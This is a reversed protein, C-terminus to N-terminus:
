GEGGTVPGGHAKAYHKCQISVSFNKLVETGRSTDYVKYYDETMKCIGRHSCTPCEFRDLRALVDGGVEIPQQLELAAIRKDQEEIHSLLAPIDERAHAIFEANANQIAEAVEDSLGLGGGKGTLQGWGRMDAIRMWNDSAKSWVWPASEDAEWPGPTAAQERARIAELDIKQEHM